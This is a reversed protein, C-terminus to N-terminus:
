NKDIDSVPIKYYPIGEWDLAREEINKQEEKPMATNAQAFKLGIDEHNSKIKQIIRSIAKQSSVPMQEEKTNKHLSNLKKEALALPISFSKTTSSRKSIQKCDCMPCSISHKKVRIKYDSICDYLGEFQHGNDCQLNITFM